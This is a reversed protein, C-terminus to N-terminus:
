EGVESMAYQPALEEVKRKIERVEFDDMSATIETFQKLLSVARDYYKRKMLADLRDAYDTLKNVMQRAESVDGKIIGDDICQLWDLIEYHREMLEKKCEKIKRKISDQQVQKSYRRSPKHLREQVEHATMNNVKFEPEVTATEEDEEATGEVYEETEDTVEDIPATAIDLDTKSQSTKVIDEYKYGMERTYRKADEYKKDLNTQKDLNKYQVFKGNTKLLNLVKAIFATKESDTRKPYAM